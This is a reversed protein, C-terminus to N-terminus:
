VFENFIQYVILLFLGVVAAVIVINIILGTAKKMSDEKGSSTILLFGAYFIAAVLLAGLIYWLVIAVNVILDGAKSAFAPSQAIYYVYDIVKILVLAIVINLIWGRATKLKESQDMAAMIKFGYVVMMVIALFFGLVKFFSLIQLFLWNQVRDVLQTTWQIAPLNLVTWLIRIVGFILFAGYAIYLLSSFSKKPGDAEKANMILNVGALVLFIFMVVIFLDRILVWLQGGAESHCPSDLNAVTSPFFLNQVNQMLTLKRDVCLSFVTEVRGYADPTADTMYKAFNTDFSPAAAFSMGWFSMGFFLFAFLCLVLKKINCM